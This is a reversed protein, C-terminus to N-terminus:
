DSPWTAWISLGSQVRRHRQHPRSEMRLETHHEHPWCFIDVPIGRKCEMRDHFRQRLPRDLPHNGTCGTPHNAGPASLM